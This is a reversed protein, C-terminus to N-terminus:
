TLEKNDSSQSKKWSSFNKTFSHLETTIKEHETIINELKNDDFNLELSEIDKEFNQFDSQTQKLKTSISKQIKNSINVAQLKKQNEAIEAKYKRVKSSNGEKLLKMKLNKIDGKIKKDLNSNQKTNLRNLETQLKLLYLKYNKRIHLIRTEFNKDFKTPIEETADKTYDKSLLTSEEINEEEEEEMVRPTVTKKNVGLINELWNRDPDNILEEYKKRIKFAHIIPLIYSIIIIVNLFNTWFPSVIDENKEKIIQYGEAELKEIKKYLSNLEDTNAPMNNDIQTNINDIKNYIKILEKYKLSDTRKLVKKGELLTIIRQEEAQYEPTTTDIYDIFLSPIFYIIGMIVWKPNKAIIGAVFISLWSFVCTFIFIFWWPFKQNKM